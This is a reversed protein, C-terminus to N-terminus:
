LGELALHKQAACSSVVLAGTKAHKRLRMSVETGNAWFKAPAEFRELVVSITEGESTGSTIAVTADHGTVEQLIGFVTQINSSFKGSLPTVALPQFTGDTDRRLFYSVDLVDHTKGGNWEEDSGLFQDRRVVIRMGPCHGNTVLRSGNDETLQETALKGRMETMRPRCNTVNVSESTESTTLEFLVEMGETWAIPGFFALRHVSFVTNMPTLVHASNECVRFLKGRHLPTSEDTEVFNSEFRAPLEVDTPTNLLSEYESVLDALARRPSALDAARLKQKGNAATAFTDVIPTFSVMAGTEFGRSDTHRLFVRELDDHVHIFSYADKGPKIAGTYRKGVVLPKRPERAAHTGTAEAVPESGVPVCERAVLVGNNEAAEFEVASNAAFADADGAFDTKNLQLLHGSSSSVFGFSGDTDISIIKGTDRALSMTTARTFNRQQLGLLTQQQCLLLAAPCPAFRAIRRM